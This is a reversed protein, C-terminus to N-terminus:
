FTQMLDPDLGSQDVVATRAPKDCQPFARRRPMLACEFYVRTVNVIPGPPGGFEGTAGAALCQQDLATSNGRSRLSGRSGRRALAGNTDTDGGSNVLEVLAEEFNLPTTAAWLGAQMTLVTTVRPAGTAECGNPMALRPGDGCPMKWFAAPFEPRRPSGGVLDPCGDARAAALLKQLDPVGRRRATGCDRRQRCRLVVPKSARLSVGCLHGGHGTGAAGSSTETRHGGSRM